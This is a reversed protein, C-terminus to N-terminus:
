RRTRAGRGPGRGPQRRHALHDHVPLRLVQLRQQGRLAAPGPRPDPRQAREQGGGAGGVQRRGRAAGGVSASLGANQSYVEPVVPVGLAAM